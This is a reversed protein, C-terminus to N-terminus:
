HFTFAHYNTEPCYNGEGSRNRKDQAFALSFYFLIFCLFLDLPLFVSDPTKVEDAEKKFEEICCQLRDNSEQLRCCNEELVKVDGSTCSNESETKKDNEM